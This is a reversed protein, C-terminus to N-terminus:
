SRAPRYTRWSTAKSTGGSGKASAPSAAGFGKASASSAAGYGEAFASNAAGYGKASAPLFRRVESIPMSLDADALFRWAGSADLMGRRVAAGQGAPPSQVLRVRPDVRSADTIISATRDTSGDDVVIM